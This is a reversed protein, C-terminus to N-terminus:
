ERSSKFLLEVPHKQGKEVFREKYADACAKGSFYHPVGRIEEVYPDGSILSNCFPCKLRLGVQPKVTVGYEEKVARVLISSKTSEIEPIQSIRRAVLEEFQGIDDVDVKALVGFSGTGVFAERVEKMEALKEAIKDLDSSRGDITLIARTKGSIKEPDLVVTFGKILGMDMLRKIRYRITPLSVRTLRALDKYMMRGDKQLLEIIKSDIEDLKAAL